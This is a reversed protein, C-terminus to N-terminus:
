LLARCHHVRFTPTEFPYKSFIMSPPACIPISEHDTDGIVRISSIVLKFDSTYSKKKEEM